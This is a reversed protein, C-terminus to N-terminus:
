LSCALMQSPPALRPPVQIIDVELRHFSKNYRHDTLLRAMQPRPNRPHMGLHFGGSRTTESECVMYCAMVVPDGRGSLQWQTEVTQGSARDRETLPRTRNTRGDTWEILPEQTEDGIYCLGLVNSGGTLKCFEAVLEPPPSHTPRVTFEYPEGSPLWREPYYKSVGSAPVPESVAGRALMIEDDTLTCHVHVLCVGFRNDYRSLLSAVTAFCEERDTFKNNAESLTPLTNYAKAVLGM